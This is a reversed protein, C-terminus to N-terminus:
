DRKGSNLWIIEEKYIPKDDRYPTELIKPIDKLQENHAWKVLHEFGITGYGINEHRDKHSCIPNKSDNLHIVKVFDLDLYKSFDELVKDPNTVDIGADNMHCTDLCVGIRNKDKVGNVMKAIEDFNVGVESGKGAMTEVCIIVDNNTAEIAKNLNDIVHNIAENRDSDLASGPHLVLLKSGIENTRNIENILQTLGVERTSKKPSALNILYPAHVVIHELSMNHEKMLDHAQRVLDKDIEKRIFNQPPGTFVMYCKGDYRITEKVSELLYDKAKYGVHSGLLLKNSM